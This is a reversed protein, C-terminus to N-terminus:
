EGNVGVLANYALGLWQVLFSIANALFYGDRLWTACTDVQAIIEM